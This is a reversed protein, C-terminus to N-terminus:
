ARCGKGFGNRLFKLEALIQSDSTVMRVEAAVALTEAREIIAAM